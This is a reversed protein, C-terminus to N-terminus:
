SGFNSTTRTGIVMAVGATDMSCNVIAKTSMVVVPPLSARAQSFVAPTTGKVTPLYRKMKIRDPAGRVGDRERRSLSSEPEGGGTPPSPLPSPAEEKECDGGKGGCRRGGLISGDGEPGVGNGRCDMGLDVADGRELGHALESPEVADLARGPNAAAASIIFCFAIAAPRESAAISRKGASPLVFYACKREWTPHSGIEALRSSIM